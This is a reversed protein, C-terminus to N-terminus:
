FYNFNIIYRRESDTSTCGRHETKAPFIVIKNEEANVFKIENNIKFETGGNCTNLYLIATTSNYHYDVHWGSKDFLKNLILNARVQVPALFNLKKLIPVIHSEYLDSTPVYENFFGYTFYINKDTDTMNNRIRWPFDRDLITSKIEEFQNKPLFNNIVKV